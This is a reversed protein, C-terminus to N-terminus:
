SHSQPLIGRRRENLKDIFRIQQWLDEVSVGAAIKLSQSHDTIGIYLDPQSSMQGLEYLKNPSDVM